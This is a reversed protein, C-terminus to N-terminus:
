LLGKQKEYMEVISSMMDVKSYDELTKIFREFREKTFLIETGHVLVNYEQEIFMIPLTKHGLTKNGGIHTVRWVEPKLMEAEIVRKTQELLNM